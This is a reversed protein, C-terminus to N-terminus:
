EEKEMEKEEAVSDEENTSDAYPEIFLSCTWGFTILALSLPIKNLFWMKLRHLGVWNLAQESTNALDPSEFFLNILQISVWEGTKLWKFIQSGFVYLGALIPVGVFFFYLYDTLKQRKM